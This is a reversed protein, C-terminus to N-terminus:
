KEPTEEKRKINDRSSQIVGMVDIYPVPLKRVTQFFVPRSNLGMLLIVNIIDLM